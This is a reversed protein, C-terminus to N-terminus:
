QIAAPRSPRDRGLLKYYLVENRDRLAALFENKALNTPQAGYQGYSRKAQEELTLVGAPLLGELGLAAREDVTFATGHNLQPDRLLSRGRAASKAGGGDTTRRETDTITM